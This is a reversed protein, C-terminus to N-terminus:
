LDAFLIKGREVFSIVEDRIDVFEKVLELKKLERVKDIMDTLKGERYGLIEESLIAMQEDM